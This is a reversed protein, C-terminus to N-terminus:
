KQRPPRVLSSYPASGFFAAQVRRGLAPWRDLLWGAGNKARPGALARQLVLAVHFDPALEADHRAQWRAAADTADRSRDIAEAVLRGSALANGIGDGTLPDALNAADGIRLVGGAAVRNRWGALATYCGVPRDVRTAAARLRRAAPDGAVFRAFHDAVTGGPAADAAWIGVGVNFCVTEPETSVPFIWGYGRNVTGDARIQVCAIDASDVTRRPLTWYSRLAVANARGAYAGRADVVVDFGPVLNRPERVTQRQPECGADLARRRVLDDLIRRPICCAPPVATARLERGGPTALLTAGIAARGPAFRDLAERDLGLRALEALAGATIWDGCIKDRPFEARDILTVRHGRRALHYGASAGAPGAGVIAIRAM